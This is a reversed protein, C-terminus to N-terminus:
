SEKSESTAEGFYKLSGCKGYMDDQRMVKRLNKERLSASKKVQREQIKRLFLSSHM